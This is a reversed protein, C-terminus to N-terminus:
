IPLCLSCGLVSAISRQSQTRLAYGHYMPIGTRGLFPRPMISLTEENVILEVEGVGSYAIEHILKKQDM